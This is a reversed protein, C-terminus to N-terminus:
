HQDIGVIQERDVERDRRLGALIKSPPYGIDLSFSRAIDVPASISRRMSSFLYTTPVLSLFPETRTQSLRDRDFHKCDAEKRQLFQYVGYLAGFGAVQQAVRQSQM